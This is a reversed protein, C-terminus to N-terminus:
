YLYQSRLGLFFNHNFNLLTLGLHVSILTVPWCRTKPCDVYCSCLFKKTRFLVKKMFFIRPVYRPKKAICRLTSTRIRDGFCNQKIKTSSSYKKKPLANREFTTVALSFIFFFCAMFVLMFRRASVLRVVSAADLLRM